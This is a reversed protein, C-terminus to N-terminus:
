RPLRLFHIPGVKLQIISFHNQKNKDYYVSYHYESFKKLRKLENNSKYFKEYAKSFKTAFLILDIYLLVKKIM